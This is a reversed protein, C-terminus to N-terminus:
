KKVLHYGMLFLPFHKKNWRFLEKRERTKWNKAIKERGKWVKWIRFSLYFHFLKHHWSNIQIFKCFYNKSYSLFQEVDFQEVGDFKTLYIFFLPINKFKNPLRFLSQHSTRSVKQKQYSQKNFPVPNSSFFLTLKKLAKHYDEKM